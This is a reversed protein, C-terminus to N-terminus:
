KLKKLLLEQDAAIDLTAVINTRVLETNHKEGHKVFQGVPMFPFPALLGTPGMSTIVEGRTIARKAKVIMEPKTLYVKDTDYVNQIRMDIEEVSDDSNLKVRKRARKAAQRDTASAYKRPRGGTPPFPPDFVLEISEMISFNHASIAALTRLQQFGTLKVNWNPIRNQQLFNLFELWGDAGCGEQGKTMLDSLSIDVTDNNRTCKVYSKSPSYGLMRLTPMFVQYVEISPNYLCSAPMPSSVRIRKNPSPSLSSAVGAPIPTYVDVEGISAWDIVSALYKTTFELVGIVDNQIKALMGGESKHDMVLSMRIRWQAGVPAKRVAINGAHFDRHIIKAKGAIVMLAWHLQKQISFLEVAPMIFAGNLHLIRRLSAGVWTTYM